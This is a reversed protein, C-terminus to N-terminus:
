AFLSLALSHSLFLGLYLLCVSGFSLPPLIPRCVFCRKDRDFCCAPGSHTEPPIQDPQSHLYPKCYQPLFCVQFSSSLFFYTYLFMLRLSSFYNEGLITMYPRCVSVCECLGWVASASIYNTDAIHLVVLSICTYVHMCVCLLPSVNM